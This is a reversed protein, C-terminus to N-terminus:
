RALGPGACLLKVAQLRISEGEIDCSGSSVLQSLAKKM